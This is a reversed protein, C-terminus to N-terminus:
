LVRQCKGNYLRYGEKCYTPLDIVHTPAPTSTRAETSTSAEGPAPTSTRAETSAPAPAALAYSVTAFWLLAALVFSTLRKM